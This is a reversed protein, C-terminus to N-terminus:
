LSLTNRPHVAYTTSAAHSLLNQQSRKSTFLRASIANLSKYACLITRYDMASLNTTSENWSIPLPPPLPGQSETDLELSSHVAKYLTKRASMIYNIEWSDITSLLSVERISAVTFLGIRASIFTKPQIWRCSLPEAVTWYLDLVISSTDAIDVYWVGDLDM